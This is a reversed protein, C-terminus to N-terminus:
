EADRASEAARARVAAAEAADIEPIALRQGPYVVSPDAIQDRNARYLAPWLWPDGVAEGAIEWLTEGPQVVHWRVEGGPEQAVGAQALALAALAPVLGRTM